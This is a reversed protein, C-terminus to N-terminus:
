DLCSKIFTMQYCKRKIHILTTHKELCQQRPLLNTEASVTFCAHVNKKTPQGTELCKLETGRYWDDPKNQEKKQKKKSLILCICGLTM